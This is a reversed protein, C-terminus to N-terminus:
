KMGAPSFENPTMEESSDFRYKMAELYRNGALKINNHKLM